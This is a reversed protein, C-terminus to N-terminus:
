KHTSYPVDYLWTAFNQLLIRVTFLNCYSPIVVYLFRTNVTRCKSMQLKDASNIVPVSICQTYIKICGGISHSAFNIEDFDHSAEQNNVIM